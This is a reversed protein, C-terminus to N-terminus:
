HAYPWADHPPPMYPPERRAPPAARRGHEANYRAIDARLSGARVTGPDAGPRPLVRVETSIPQIPSVPRLVPAAPGVRVTIERPVQGPAVFTSATRKEISVTGSARAGPRASLAAVAADPNASRNAAPTHAHSQPSSPAPAHQPGARTSRGPAGNPGGADDDARPQHTDQAGFGPLRLTGVLPVAGDRHTAIVFAGVGLTALAGAAVASAGLVSFNRGLRLLM